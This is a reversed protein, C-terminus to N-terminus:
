PWASLTAKNTTKVGGANQLIVCLNTGDSWLQAGNQAIAPPTATLPLIFGNTATITNTASVTTAVIADVFNGAKGISVGRSVDPYFVNNFMVMSNGGDSFYAGGGGGLFAFVQSSPGRIRTVGAGVFKFDLGGNTQSGSISLGGNTQILVGSANASNSVSLGSTPTATGGIQLGSLTGLFLTGVQSAITATGDADIPVAGSATANAVGRGGDGVQVRGSTLVANNTTATATLNALPLTGSSISSANLATLASGDGGFINAANTLKLSRTDNTATLNNTTVVSAALAFATANSYAATGADSLKSITLTPIDSASLTTGSIERGQADFTAKTYTGATGIPPLNTVANTLTAQTVFSATTATTASTATTANDANTAHTAQAVAGIVNGGTLNTLGGGHGTYAQSTNILGFFRNAYVDGGIASVSGATIGGNATLTHAPDIAVDNSFTTSATRNNTLVGDPLSALPISTLGSGSGTFTTSKVDGVNTIGATNMPGEITVYSTFHNSVTFRNEADTTAVKQSLRADPITGSSISSANLATLASGDGGLTNAANTLNLVRVDNTSTFDNTSLLSWNTLYASNTIDFISWNTQGTGGGGGSVNTLGAGNGYFQGVYINGAGLAALPLLFILAFVRM